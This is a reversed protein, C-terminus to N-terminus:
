DAMAQGAEECEAIGRSLPHSQFDSALRRLQSLLQHYEMADGM